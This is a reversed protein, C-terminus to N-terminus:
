FAPIKVEAVLRGAPGAAMEKESKSRPLKVGSATQSDWLESLFYADGVHNFMLYGQELGAKQGGPTSMVAVTENTDDNRLTVIGNPQRTLKYEGATEHASGAKFDFPITAHLQVFDQAFSHSCISLGVFSLIGVANLFRNKM